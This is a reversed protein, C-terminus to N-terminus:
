TTTEKVRAPDRARLHYVRSDLKSRVSAVQNDRRCSTLMPVRVSASCWVGSQSHPKSRSTHEGERVAAAPASVRGRARKPPLPESEPDDPVDVLNGQEDEMVLAWGKWGRKKKRRKEGNALAPGTSPGPTSENGSAGAATAM